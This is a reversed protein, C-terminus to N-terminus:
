PRDGGPGPSAKPSAIPPLGAGALPEKAWPAYAIRDQVYEGEYGEYTLTPVDHWDRLSGINGDPGRKEMERTTAAGWWNGVAQVPGSGIDFGDGGGAAASGQGRSARIVAQQQLGRMPKKGVRREWDRSMNGLEMQIENDVLNNGRVVAYSSLTLYIGRRNREIANAEILPAAIQNCSIGTGNERIENNRILPRAGMFCVIGEKNGAITNGAIEPSSIHQIFIGTECGEVTNGAVPKGGEASSLAIGRQCERVRNNRILPATQILEIGIACGVVTNEQVLPVAGQSAHVGFPGCREITNKEVLPTSKGLCRIGGEKLDRLTNGRIVPRATDGNIEIGDVGGSIECQEVQHSGGAIVLSRAGRIECNTLLSASAHSGLTIGAWAEQGDGAPLFLIPKDATGQALLTGDVQLGVGDRFLIQSGPRITLTAGAGVTVPQGVLIKGDWVTDAAVTEPATVAADEGARVPATTLLLALLCLRLPGGGYM